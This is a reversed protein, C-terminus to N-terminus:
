GNDKYNVHCGYPKTKPTSVQSGALLEDLAKAVYNTKGTKGPAPEDDIAGMYAIKGDKGVVFMAPTNKAGYSRGVSQTTDQLIPYEINWKKKAEVNRETGSGPTGAPTTNIALLVVGKDKYKSNLENFTKHDGEYHKQVFPCNPNFWQLVVIKGSKTLESLTHEKGDTDKLKFDPAASGVAIDAPDDKKADGKKDKSADTKPQAAAPQDNKADPKTTQAMAPAVSVFLAAAVSLLLHKANM